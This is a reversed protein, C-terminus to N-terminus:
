DVAVVYGCVCLLMPQISVAVVVGARTLREEVVIVVEVLRRRM